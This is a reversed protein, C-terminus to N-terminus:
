SESPRAPSAVARGGGGGGGFSLDLTYRGRLIDIAKAAREAAAALDNLAREAERVQSVDVEIHIPEIAM